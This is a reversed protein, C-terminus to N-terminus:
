ARMMLKRLTNSINFTARHMRMYRSTLFKALWFNRKVVAHGAIV